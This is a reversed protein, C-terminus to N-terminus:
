IPIPKATSNNLYYALIKQALKLDLAHRMYDDLFEAKGERIVMRVDPNVLKVSETKFLALMIDRDSMIIGGSHGNVKYCLTLGCGEYVLESTIQIDNTTIM